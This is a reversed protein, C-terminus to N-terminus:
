YTVWTGTSIFEDDQNLISYVGSAKKIEGANINFIVYIDNRASEVYETDEIVLKFTEVKTM